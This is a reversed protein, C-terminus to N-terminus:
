LEERLFKEWDEHRSFKYHSPYTTPHESPLPASAYDSFSKKVHYPYFSRCVVKSKSQCWMILGFVILMLIM